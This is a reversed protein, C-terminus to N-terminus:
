NLNFWVYYMLVMDIGHVGHIDRITYDGSFLPSVKNIAVYITIVTSGTLTKTDM